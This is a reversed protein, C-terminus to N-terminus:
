TKPQFIANKNKVLLTIGSIVTLFVALLMIYFIVSHYISETKGDWLYTYSREYSQIVIFILTLYLALMQSVTKYKGITEAEIVGGKKLAIIRFGTVVFERVAIIVVMWLPLVGMWAFGFFASLVLIKDAIPDMFRGFNTIEKLRKALYGDLFDTWMALTFILLATLKYCFGEMFLFVIFIFTLFIRSITLKNPLNM